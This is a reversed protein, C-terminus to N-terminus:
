HLTLRPLIHPLCVSRLYSPSFTCFYLRWNCGEPAPWGSCTRCGAQGLGEGPRSSLCGPVVGVAPVARKLVGFVGREVWGEGGSLWLFLPPLCRGTCPWAEEAEGCGHPLAPHAGRSVRSRTRTFPSWPRWSTASSRATTRWRRWRGHAACVAPRGGGRRVGRMRPARRCRSATSPAPRARSARCHIAKPQPRDETRSDDSRGAELTLM